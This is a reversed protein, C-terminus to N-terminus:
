LPARVFVVPLTGRGLVQIGVSGVLAHRRLSHGHTAMWIADARRDTAVDVIATDVGGLPHIQRVETSTAVHQPLRGALVRLQEHCDDVAVESSPTDSRADRYVRLLTVDVRGSPADEIVAHLVPVVTESAPSGDTTVLVRYLGYDPNPAPVRPGILMVPRTSKSLVGTAVGGILARRVFGAGRTAMVILSADHEEALRLIAGSAREAPERHGISAVARVGAETTLRRIDEDIGPGSHSVAPADSPELVRFLHVDQGVAAALRVAHPIARLSHPSGDTTVLITM